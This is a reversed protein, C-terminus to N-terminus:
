PMPPGGVGPGLGGGTHGGVSDRSHELRLAMLEMSVSVGNYTNGVSRSMIGSPGLFVVLVSIIAAVFVVYEVTSSGTVRVM